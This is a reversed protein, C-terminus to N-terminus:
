QPTVSINRCAYVLINTRVPVGAVTWTQTLHMSCNGTPACNSNKPLCASSCLSLVDPAAFNGNSVTLTGVPTPPLMGCTNAGPVFSEVAPLGAVPIATGFQNFVVYQMDRQVGCYDVNPGYMAKCDVNQVSGTDSVITLSTPKHVTVASSQATAQEQNVIYTVSLTTDGKTASQSTASYSATAGNPTLNITTKSASWSFTGGSPNVTAACTGTTTTPPATPGLVLDAQTCSVAITPKVNVSGTAENDVLPCKRPAEQPLLGGAIAGELNNGRKEKM